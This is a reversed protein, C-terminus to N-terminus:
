RTNRVIENSYGSENGDGDLATMAVYYTGAPVSISTSTASPNSVPVEGSYNRSFQGYYVRYGALDVLATGDVNETPAQWNLALVGTVNVAIMAVASGGTGSCTLTFTTNATLAPSTRTGSTGLTGSWGGSARCSTSNTSSWILSTTQGSDVLTRGASLSVTPSPALSPPPVPAPTPTSGPAPAPTPAAGSRDITGSATSTASDTAGAATRGSSGSCGSQLALAGIAIILIYPKM